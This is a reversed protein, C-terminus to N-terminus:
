TKKVVFAGFRIKLLFAAIHGTICFLLFFTPFLNAICPLIQDLRHLFPVVLFVSRRTQVLLKNRTPAM